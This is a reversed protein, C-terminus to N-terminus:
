LILIAWTYMWAPKLKSEVTPVAERVQTAEAGAGASWLDAAESGQEKQGEGEACGSATM